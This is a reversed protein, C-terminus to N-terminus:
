GVLRQANERGLFAAGLVALAVVERESGRGHPVPELVLQDPRSRVIRDNGHASLCRPTFVQRTRLTQKEASCVNLNPAAVYTKPRSNLSANSSREYGSGSKPAM